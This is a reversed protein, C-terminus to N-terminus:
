IFYHHFRGSEFAIIHAIKPLWQLCQHHNLIQIRKKRIVDYEQHKHFMCSTYFEAVFENRWTTHLQPNEKLYFSLASYLISPVIAFRRSRAVLALSLWLNYESFKKVNQQSPLHDQYTSHDKLHAVEHFLNWKNLREDKQWYLIQLEPKWLHQYYVVRASTVSGTPKENENTLFFKTNFTSRNVGFKSCAEDIYKETQLIFDQKSM